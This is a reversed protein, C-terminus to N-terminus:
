CVKSSAKELTRQQRAVMLGLFSQTIDVGKRMTPLVLQLILYWISTLLAFM